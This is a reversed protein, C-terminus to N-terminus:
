PMLALSRVNRCNVILFRSERDRYGILYVVFLSEASPPEETVEASREDIVAFLYFHLHWGTMWEATKSNKSVRVKLRKGRWGAIGDVWSHAAVKIELKM